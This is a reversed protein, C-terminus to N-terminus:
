KKQTLPSCIIILEMKGLDMNKEKLIAHFIPSFDALFPNAYSM